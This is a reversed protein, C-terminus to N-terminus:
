RMEEPECCRMMVASIIASRSATSSRESHVASTGCMIVAAASRSSSTIVRCGSPRSTKSRSIHRCPRRNKGRLRDGALSSPLDGVRIPTHLQHQLWPNQAALYASKVTLDVMLSDAGTSSGQVRGTRREDDVIRDDAERLRESLRQILERAARPSLVIQHLFESPTLIEVEIESAARVTASRRRNEIVGMEGIFQGAGVTGLLIPDGDLERVVEVFGSLLRFVSDSLEGESFLVQGESFHTRTM